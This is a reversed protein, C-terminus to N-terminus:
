GPIVVKILYTSRQQKTAELMWKKWRPDYVGESTDLEQQISNMFVMDLQRARVQTLVLM